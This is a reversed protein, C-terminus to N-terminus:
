SHDPWKCCRCWCRKQGSQSAPHCRRQTCRGTWSSGPVGRRRCSVSFGNYKINSFLFAADTSTGHYSNGTTTGDNNADYPRAYGGVLTINENIPVVAAAASMHHDLIASGGGISAPLSLSQHGVLFRNKTGPWNFDIYAKRMHIANDTGAAAGVGGGNNGLRLGEAGGWAGTGYQVELVGRLNENAIFQFATRFRQDISVTKQNTPAGGFFNQGAFVADIQWNGTAKVDAANATTAGMALGALLALSLAFRKKM